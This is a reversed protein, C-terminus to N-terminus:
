SVSTVYDVTVDDEDATQVSAALSGPCDGTSCLAPNIGACPNAQAAISEYFVKVNYTAPSAGLVDFSEIWLDEAPTVPAAATCTQQNFMAVAGRTTPAKLQVWGTTPDSGTGPADPAANVKYEIRYTVESTYSRSVDSQGAPACAQSKPDKPNPGAAQKNFTCRWTRYAMAKLGITLSSTGAATTVQVSGALPIPMDTEDTTGLGPTLALGGTSTPAASTEIAGTWLLLLQLKGETLWQPTVELVEFAERLLGRRGTIPNTILPHSVRISDLIELPHRRFTVALRLFWPAQGWRQLFGLALTDMLAQGGRNTRIGGFEMRSAPQPGYKTVSADATWVQRRGFDDKRLAPDNFDYFLDIKNRITAQGSWSFGPLGTQPDALIDHEDLTYFDETAVIATM